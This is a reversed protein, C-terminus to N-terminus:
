KSPILENVTKSYEVNSEEWVEFDKPLMEDCYINYYKRRLKAETEMLRKLEDSPEYPQTCIM